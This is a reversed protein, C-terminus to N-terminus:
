LSWGTDVSGSSGLLMWVVVFGSISGCCGVLQSVVWLSRQGVWLLRGVAVSACRDFRCRRTRSCTPKVADLGCHDFWLSRPGTSICCDVLLVETQWNVWPWLLRGVVGALRGWPLWCVAASGVSVPQCADFGFIPRGRAVTSWSLVAKSPRSFGFSLLRIVWM